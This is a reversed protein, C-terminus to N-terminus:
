KQSAPLNSKAVNELPPKVQPFREYLGTKEAAEPYFAALHKAAELQVWHDEDRVSKVFVPELGQTGDDISGLCSIAV